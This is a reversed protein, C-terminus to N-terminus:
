HWEDRIFFATGPASVPDLGDETRSISPWSGEEKKGKQGLARRHWVAPCLLLLATRWGFHSGAQHHANKQSCFTYHWVWEPLDGPLGAAPVAASPHGTWARVMLPWQMYTFAGELKCFFHRTGRPDGLTSAVSVLSSLSPAFRPLGPHGHPVSVGHPGRRGTCSDYSPMEWSDQRRKLLHLPAWPICHPVSIKKGIQQWIHLFFSLCRQAKKGKLM